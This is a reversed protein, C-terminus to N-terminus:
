SGDGERECNSLWGARFNDGSFGIAVFAALAIKKYARLM